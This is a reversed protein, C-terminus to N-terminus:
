WVETLKLSIDYVSNAVQNIDFESQDFRVIAWQDPNYNPDTDNPLFIFPLHSGQVKPNLIVM